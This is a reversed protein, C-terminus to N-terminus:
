RRLIKAPNGGAVCGAPIDRTVVSGAGILAGAGIRVGKLVTVNLGLWVDDEIVVPAPRGARPDDSHWDTDTIVTNAGCRVRDGLEIRVEAGIVTGSFGCHSGIQIAAGRSLTSLICKHNIGILNTSPGSRFQCSAGISITSGPVRRVCPM